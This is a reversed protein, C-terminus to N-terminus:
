TPQLENGKALLGVAPESSFFVIVANSFSFLKGEGLGATLLWFVAASIRPV